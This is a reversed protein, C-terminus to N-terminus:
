GSATVFGYANIAVGAVSVTAVLAWLLRNAWTSREEAQTAPEPQAPQVPARVFGSEIAAGFSRM